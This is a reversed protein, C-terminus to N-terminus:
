EILVTEGARVKDGPRVMIKMEKQYPVVIDVQSGIRIMGFISGKRVHQGGAVYSDIGRVSKAAIQIVYCSLLRDRYRGELRTVTRENQLIHLSDKSYPGRHFLTRLHMALMCVNEMKGPYHRISIVIGSLPVRNYHVDFPSMFIGILIKRTSLDENVIDNVSASLGHKIVIVPEHPEVTRVYVVTGDAPSTISDGDPVTRTPTRFFWIYRWYYFLGSLILAVLVVLGVATLNAGM